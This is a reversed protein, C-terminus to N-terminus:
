RAQRRHYRSQLLPTPHSPRAPSFDLLEPRVSWRRNMQHPGREPRHSRDGLGELGEAEYKALWCPLTQRSVGWDHAVEKVTRGEAVVALVAKYRQEAVSIERM